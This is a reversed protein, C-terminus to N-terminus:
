MGKGAKGAKRRVHEGLYRIGKGHYPEPPRVKRIESAVKGVTEKDMGMVKVQRTKADAEFSIGDVPDIEVPHSYGVNLVLIAGKMEARYGVGQIELVKEFGGSVGQVMNAILARTTGHLARETPHNSKRKVTVQGDALAIEMLHSFQRQMEGKQGKIKVFSGTIDVQVGDPIAVPMRGIRSM